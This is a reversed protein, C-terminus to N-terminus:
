QKKIFLLIQKIFTNYKETFYMRNSRIVPRLSTKISTIFPERATPISSNYILILILLLIIIFYQIKM